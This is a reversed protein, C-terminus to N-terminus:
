RMDPWKIPRILQKVPTQNAVTCCLMMVTPFVMDTTMIGTFFQKIAKAGVSDIFNVTDLGPHHPPCFLQINLSSPGESNSEHTQGWGGSERSRRGEMHNYSLVEHTVERRRTGEYEDVDCYLGTGPVHGLCFVKPVSPPQFVVWHGGGGAAGGSIGAAGLSRIIRGLTLVVAVSRQRWSGGRGPCRYTQIRNRRTSSFM